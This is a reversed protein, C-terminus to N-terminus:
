GECYVIIHNGAINETDMQFPANDSLQDIASLVEGSCPAFLKDGFIEYANLNSPLLGKARIGWNNLEVIDLAYKQALFPYHHNVAKSSGGHSIYYTGNRLPFSLEVPKGEYKHSTVVQAITIIFVGAFICLISIGLWSTFGRKPFWPLGKSNKILFIGSPILLVLFLLPWLVGFWHWGAGGLKMMFLFSVVFSAVAIRYLKNEGRNFTLWGLFIFPLILHFIFTLFVIIHIVDQM